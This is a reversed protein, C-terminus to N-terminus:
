PASVSLAGQMSDVFPKGAAEIAARRADEIQASALAMVRRVDASWFRAFAVVFAGMRPQAVVATGSMDQVTARILFSLFNVFCEGMLQKVPLENVKFVLLTRQMFPLNEDESKIPAATSEDGQWNAFNLDNLVNVLVTRVSPPGYSLLDKLPSDDPLSSHVYWELEPDIDGYLMNRSGLLRTHEVFKALFGAFVENPMSVEKSTSRLYVRMGNELMKADMSPPAGDICGQQGQQSQAVAAPSAAAVSGVGSGALSEAVGAKRRKHAPQQASIQEEIDFQQYVFLDSLDGLAAVDFEEEPKGKKKLDDDHPELEESSSESGRHRLYAQAHDEFPLLGAFGPPSGYVDGADDSEHSALKKAKKHFLEGSESSSAWAKAAAQQV